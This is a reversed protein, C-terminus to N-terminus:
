QRQRRRAPAAWHQASAANIFGIVPMAPQQARAALPWATAGDLLTIFERRKM